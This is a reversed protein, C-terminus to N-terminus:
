PCPRFDFALDVIGAKVNRLVRVDDPSLGSPLASKNEKFFDEVAEPNFTDGPRVLGRLRPELKPDLAMIEVKGVHFQQEPDLTFVLSILPRLDDDVETDPVATFDIYGDSGYLKTLAEIGNRILAVNFIEGGRIPIAARLAAEPIISDDDFRMDTVGRFQIDRLRYQLGEEVHAIVLFREETSNGGLSRVKATVNVRFYGHTLWADRLGLQTFEKIWDPDDANLMKQNAEGIIRVVDSHSVHIPGDFNIGKIIVKRWTIIAKQHTGPGWCRRPVEPFQAGSPASCVLSCIVALLGFPLTARRAM